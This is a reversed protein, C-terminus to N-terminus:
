DNQLVDQELNPVLGIMGRRFSSFQEAPNHRERTPARDVPKAALLGVTPRLLTILFMEVFLRRASRRLIMRGSVFNRARIQSFKEMFTEVDQWLMLAFRELESKKGAHAM